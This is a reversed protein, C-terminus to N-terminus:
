ISDAKLNENIAIVKLVKDNAMRHDVIFDIDKFKDHKMALQLGRLRGQPGNYEKPRPKKGTPYRIYWELSLAKEKTFRPDDSTVVCLYKWLPGGNKLVQGRTGKAGGSIEMNHQRLRRELNTTYGNYTVNNKDNYLIYCYQPQKLQEVEVEGGVNEDQEGTDM